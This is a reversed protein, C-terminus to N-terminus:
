QTKGARVTYAPSIAFWRADPEGQVLETVNLMVVGLHPDTRTVSLDMQLDPSHWSETYSIAMQGLVNPAMVRTGTTPLGEITRQGLSESGSNGPDAANQILATSANFVSTACTMTAKTCITRTGSIPDLITFSRLPPEATSDAAVFERMERRVRGQSDRAVLTYYKRSDTGGGVLPRNWTVDVKATFPADAIPPIQIGQIQTRVSGAPVQQSIAPVAAIAVCLFLGLQASRNM